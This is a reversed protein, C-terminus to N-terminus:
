TAFRRSRWAKAVAKAREIDAQTTMHNVSLRMM